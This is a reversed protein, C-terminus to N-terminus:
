QPGTPPLEPDSPPTQPEAPPTVPEEPPTMPDEPPTTPESPPIAPETGPTQPTGAQSLKQELDRFQNNVRAMQTEIETRFTDFEVSGARNFNQVRDDLSAVQTQLAQYQDQVQPKDTGTYGDVRARLNDVKTRLEMIQGRWATLAQDHMATNLDNAPAPTPVSPAPATMTGDQNNRPVGGRNANADEARECGVLGVAVLSGAVLWVKTNMEREKRIGAEELV